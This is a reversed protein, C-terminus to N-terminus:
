NRLSNGNRRGSSFCSGALLALSALVIIALSPVACPDNNRAPAPEDANPTLAETLAPPEV